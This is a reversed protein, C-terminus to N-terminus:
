DFTHEPGPFTKDKVAQVYAALAAPVDPTDRLFDRAFRPRRGPTIGLMDYLVLVQGDCVPGAGIGIVPLHIRNVIVEAVRSPVSELLLVDAGAKELRGAEEVIMAAAAEDRGQVRYSGLKHVSQPRLGLHACVPIGQANLAKVIEVQSAGAELKVIQAGGEQVLRGANGLAQPVTSYSMFPMDVMLLARSLGRSVCRSHYIMDAVTVPLTTDHGQVIMGLTDGVLIVEVGAREELAAFSADYATLCAFKEGSRKMKRLTSLTIRAPAKSAPESNM